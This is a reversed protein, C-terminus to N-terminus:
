SRERDPRIVAPLRYEANLLAQERQKREIDPLVHETVERYHALLKAPDFQTSGPLEDIYRKLAENM